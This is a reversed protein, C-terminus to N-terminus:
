ESIAFDDGFVVKKTGPLLLGANWEGTRSFYQSETPGFEAPTYPKRTGRPKRATGGRSSTTKLVRGTHHHGNRVARYGAWVQSQRQNHSLAGRAM